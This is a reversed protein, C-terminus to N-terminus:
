LCEEVYFELSDFYTDILSIAMENAPQTYKEPIKSVTNNVRHSTCSDEAFVNAVIGQIHEWVRWPKSGTNVEITRAAWYVDDSNGYLKVTEEFYVNADKLVSKTM